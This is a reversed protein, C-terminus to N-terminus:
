KLEENLACLVRQFTELEGPLFRGELKEVARGIVDEGSDYYNYFREGMQLRCERRDEPSGSKRVYGKAALNNVKYTANPQSIGLAEALRTITPNKLLSIVDATFAETASLSGDRERIQRFMKRYHILRFHDYLTMLEGTLGAPKGGSQKKEGTDRGSGPEAAPRGAGEKCFM